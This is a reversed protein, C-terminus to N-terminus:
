GKKPKNTSRKNRGPTTPEPLQKAASEYTERILNETLFDIAEQDLRDKQEKSPAKISTLIDIKSKILTELLKIDLPDLGETKQKAGINQIEQNLIDLAYFKEKHDM